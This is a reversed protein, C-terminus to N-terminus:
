FEPFPLDEEEYYMVAVIQKGTRPDRAITMNTITKGKKFSLFSQDKGAYEQTVNWGETQMNSRYHNFIVTPEADTNFLVNRANGALEQVAVADSGEMVPIDKPFDEPLEAKGMTPTSESAETPPPPTRRTPAAAAQKDGKPTPLDASFGNRSREAPAPLQPVDRHCTCSGVAMSLVLMGGLRGLWQIM